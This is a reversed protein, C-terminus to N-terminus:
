SIGVEMHGTSKRVKLVVPFGMKRGTSEEEKDTAEEYIRVMKAAEYASGIRPKVFTEIAIIIPRIM